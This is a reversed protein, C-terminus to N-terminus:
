YRPPCPTNSSPKWTSSPSIKPKKPGFPAPLVVVMQRSMLRSRGVEPSAWTKPRSVHRWEGRDLGGGAEHGAVQVMNLWSSSTPVFHLQFRPHKALWARVKEHNHTGYNDLILHLTLQKPMERDLHRLFKLFEQHRQRALCQGIVRGDLM